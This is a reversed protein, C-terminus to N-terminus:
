VQRVVMNCAALWSARRDSADAQHKDSAALDEDAAVHCMLSALPSIGFVNRAIVPLAM